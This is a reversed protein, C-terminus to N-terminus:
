EVRNPHLDDFRKIPQLLKASAFRLAPASRAGARGELGVISECLAEITARAWTNAPVRAAKREREDLEARKTLFVEAQEM